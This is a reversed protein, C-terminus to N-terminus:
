GLAWRYEMIPTTSDMQVITQVPIVDIAMIPDMVPTMQWSRRRIVVVVAVVVVGVETVVM